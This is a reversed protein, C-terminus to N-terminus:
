IQVNTEVGNILQKSLSFKQNRRYILTHLWLQEHEYHCKLIGSSYFCTQVVINSIGDWYFPTHFDHQNWGTIENVTTPGFCTQLNNNSWASLSVQTTSKLEIEFNSITGGSPVVVDFGLGTINGASMGAAQLESAKILMQHKVGRFWNGYISPYATTSSQLNGTGVIHFSGQSFIISPTFLAILLIIKKM